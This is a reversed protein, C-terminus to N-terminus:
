VPHPLAERSHHSEQVQRIFGATGLIGVNTLEGVVRVGVGSRSSSQPGEDGLVVHFLEVTRDIDPIGTREAVVDLTGPLFTRVTVFIPDIVASAGRGAGDHDVRRRGIRAGCDPGAEFMADVIIEIPMTNMPFVISLLRALAPLINPGVWDSEVIASLGIFGYII